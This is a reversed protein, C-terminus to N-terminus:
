NILKKNLFHGLAHIYTICADDQLAWIVMKIINNYTDSNEKKQSTNTVIFETIKKKRKKEKKGM